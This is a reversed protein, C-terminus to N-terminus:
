LKKLTEFLETKLIALAQFFSEDFEPKVKLGPNESKNRLESYQVQNTYTNMVDAAIKKLHLNLDTDNTKLRNIDRSINRITEEILESRLEPHLSEFNNQLYKALVSNEM